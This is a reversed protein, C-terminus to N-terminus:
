VRGQWIRFGALAPDNLLRAAHTETNSMFEALTIGQQILYNQIVSRPIMAVHRMESTGTDGASQTARAFDLVPEVDESLREVYRDGDRWFGTEKM